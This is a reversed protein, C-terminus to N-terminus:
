LLRKEIIGGGLVRDGEFFVASQGPTVSKQPKDFRVRVMQDIDPMLTGPHGEDNYRIKIEAQLTRDIGSISIWNLQGALFERSFLSEKNGITIKNEDANIDVVYMPEPFGGGLGKRQGITYFPYGDHRGVLEGDINVLPGGRLTSNLAPRKTRLLRHYNNDPIFCIEQSEPKEAIPLRYKKALMRVKQKSLEGLPFVTRALNKQKIGWLAYSQDKTRDIARHLEIRGSVPNKFTRAYHGTAILDAGLDDAKEVLTQWKIRTNCQVCPNPTRGALYEDIFDEVVSQHFERSFNLIYHPIGCSVCIERADNFSDLSCCGSEHNINGGVAEFDWLKMTVGIVNYGQEKLLVAAVSSDVGGSMAVIVSKYKASM